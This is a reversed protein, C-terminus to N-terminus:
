LQVVKNLSVLDESSKSKGGNIRSQTGAAVTVM